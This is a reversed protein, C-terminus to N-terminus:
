NTHFSFTLLTGRCNLPKLECEDRSKKLLHILFFVMVLIEPRCFNFLYVTFNRVKPSPVVSFTNMIRDPYEEKIKSILLTGMGSGTGGGLSHCLQFGQLCDCSEAEKRTVDLVSDVLEAGETYHGKAWNNGAGSQGFVFNDPRFIQGFPGSRVSDMTGPELDILM